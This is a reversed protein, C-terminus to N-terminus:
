SLATKNPQARKMFLRLFAGMNKGNTWDQRNSPGVSFVVVWHFGRNTWIRYM